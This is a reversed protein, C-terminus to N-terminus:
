PQVSGRVATRIFNITDNMDAGCAAGPGGTGRALCRLAEQALDLDADFARLEPSRIVSDRKDQEFYQFWAESLRRWQTQAQRAQELTQLGLAQGLMLGALTGVKVVEGASEPRKLATRLENSIPAIRLLYAVGVEQLLKYRAARLYDENTRIVGKRLGYVLPDACLGVRGPRRDEVEWFRRPVMWDICSWVRVELTQSWGLGAVLKAVDPALGDTLLRARDEYQADYIDGAGSLRSLSQNVGDLHLRFPALRARANDFQRGAYRQEDLTPLNRDDTVFSQLSQLTAWDVSRGGAVLAGDRLMFQSYTPTRSSDRSYYLDTIGAPTKRFLLPHVLFPFEGVVRFGGDAQGLLLLGKCPRAADAVVACDDKKPKAIVLADPLNDGVMPLWALRWWTAPYAQAEGPSQALHQAVAAALADLRGLFPSGPSAPAGTASPNAPQASAACGLVLALGALAARVASSLWRGSTKAMAQCCAGVRTAGRTTTYVMKM